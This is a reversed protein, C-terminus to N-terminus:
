STNLAGGGVILGPKHKASLQVPAHLISSSSRTTEIIRGAGENHRPSRQSDVRGPPSAPSVPLDM